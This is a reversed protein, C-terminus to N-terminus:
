QQSTILSIPLSIQILFLLMIVDVTANFFLLVEGGILILFSWRLTRYGTLHVDALHGM